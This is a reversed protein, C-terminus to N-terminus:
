VLVTNQDATEAQRLKNRKSIPQTRGGVDPGLEVLGARGGAATDGPIPQTGFPRCVQRKGGDSEEENFM